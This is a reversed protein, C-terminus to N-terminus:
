PNSSFQGSNAPTRKESTQDFNQTKLSKVKKNARDLFTSMDQCFPHPFLSLEQVGTCGLCTWFVSLSSFFLILRPKKSRITIGEVM